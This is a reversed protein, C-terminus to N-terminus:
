RISTKLERISGEAANSWPSYPVTQKQRIHYQRCIRSFEGGVEEPANDSVLEQPIGADHIMSVLTHSVDGKSKIPYFRDYGSGNTYVQAAKYGRTSKVKGFMTDTYFRGRLTPYKLHSMRQRIRREGPALVNRIGTQTTVNMTRKAAALGINWRRALVEPTLTAKREESTLASISRIKPDRSKLIRGQDVLGDGIHDHESVVIQEDVLDAFEDDFTALASHAEYYSKAACIQRCMVENTTDHWMRSVKAVTMENAAFEDSAPLWPDCSTIEYHPIDGDNYEEWTPARSEFGSIIGELQLPIRVKHEPIYISHSSLRDFQRPVDEVVLGAHRLQNPNLLSSQLRKGFYLAQHIILICSDGTAADQYLTAVTAVLIGKLPKLEDSYANVSVRQDNHSILLTNDGAVCTDAHSDLECRISSSTAAIRRHINKVYRIADASQV